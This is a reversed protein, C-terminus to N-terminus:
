WGLPQLSLACFKQLGNTHWTHSLFVRFEQWSPPFHVCEAEMVTAGQFLSLPKAPRQVSCSRVVKAHEFSRAVCTKCYWCRFGVEVPLSLKWLDKSLGHPFVTRAECRKWSCFRIQSAFMPEIFYRLNLGLGEAPLNSTLGPAWLIALWTEDRETQSMDVPSKRWLLGFRRLTHRLQM